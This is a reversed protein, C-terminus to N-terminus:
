PQEGDEVPETEPLTPPPTPAHLSFNRPYHAILWDVDVKPLGEMVEGDQVVEPGVLKLTPKDGYKGDSRRGGKKHLWSTLDPTAKFLVDPM